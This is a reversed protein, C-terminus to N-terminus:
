NNQEHLEGKRKYLLTLPVKDTVDNIQVLRMTDSSIFWTVLDKFTPTTEFAELFRMGIHDGVQEFSDVCKHEHVSIIQSALLDNKFQELFGGFSLVVDKPETTICVGKDYKAYWVSAGQTDPAYIAMAKGDSGRFGHMEMIDKFEQWENTDKEFRVVLSGAEFEKVFDKLTM